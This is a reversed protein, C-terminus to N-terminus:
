TTTRALFADTALAPGFAVYAGTIDEAMREVSFRDEIRTVLAAARTRAAAEDKLFQQLKRALSRRRSSRSPQPRPKLFSTLCRNPGQPCSWAAAARFPGGLPNRTLFLSAIPRM